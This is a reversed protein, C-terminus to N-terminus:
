AECRKGMAEILYRAGLINIARKFNYSLFALFLEGGVNDIGKTLLYEANMNRKITGFPHEAISKRQAVIDKRATLRVQKVDLNKDNFEKTFDAKPMSIEFAKYREKTCKCKCSSCARGNRFFAKGKSKKYTSPYLTQGMPCIVINRDPLYVSLGNVHGTINQATVENLVLEKPVDLDVPLCVDYDCGAVHPTIGQAICMVIDSVANYGKDATANLNKVGLMEASAVAMPPLQNKDQATNIVDFHVIMKNKSDVSSQVNYCVDLKGDSMMLRSDPDTLSKQTEGNQSLEDSYSQYLEKRQSLADIIDAIESSSKSGSSEMSNDADNELKDAEDAKM